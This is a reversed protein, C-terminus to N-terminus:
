AAASAAVPKAEAATATRYFAYHLAALIPTAAGCALRLAEPALRERTMEHAMEALLAADDVSQLAGWQEGLVVHWEAFLLGYKLALLPLLLAAGYALLRVYMGGRGALLAAARDLAGGSRAAAHEFVAVPLALAVCAARQPAAVAARVAAAVDAAVANLHVGRASGVLWANRLLSGGLSLDVVWDCLARSIGPVSGAACFGALGIWFVADLASRMGDPQLAWKPREDNERMVLLLAGGVLASFSLLWALYAVLLALAGPLAVLAVPPPVAQLGAVVPAWAGNGLAAAKHLVKGGCFIAYLTNMNMLVRLADGFAAGASFGPAAPAAAEKAGRRWTDIWAQAGDAPSADAAAASSGSSAGDSRAAPAAAQKARWTDIWAQAADAAASDAAAAARARSGSSACRTVGGRPACRLPPPAARHHLLPRAPLAPALAARGAPRRVAACPRLLPRAHAASGALAARPAACSPASMVVTSGSRVCLV